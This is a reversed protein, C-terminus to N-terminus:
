HMARSDLLILVKLGGLKEVLKINPMTLFAKNQQNKKVNKM